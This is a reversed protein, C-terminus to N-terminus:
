LSQINLMFNNRPQNQFPKMVREGSLNKISTKQQLIEFVYRFTYEQKHLVAYICGHLRREPM